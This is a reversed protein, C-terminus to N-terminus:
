FDKAKTEKDGIRKRRLKEVAGVVLENGLNNM